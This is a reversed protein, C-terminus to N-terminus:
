ICGLAEQITKLNISVEPWTKSKKDTVRRFTYNINRRFCWETFTHLTSFDCFQISMIGKYERFSHIDQADIGWVNSTIYDKVKKFLTDPSSIIDLHIARQDCYHRLKNFDREEVKIQIVYEDNM